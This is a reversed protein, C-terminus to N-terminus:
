IYSACTAQINLEPHHIEFGYIGLENIKIEATIKKRTSGAFLKEIKVQIVFGDGHEITHNHYKEEKIFYFPAIFDQIYSNPRFTDLSFQDHVKHASFNIKYAALYFQYLLAKQSGYYRTFYFSQGDNIFYAIDKTEHSYIYTQLQVNTFVEWTEQRQDNSTVTLRFGPQFDFAKVISGKLVPNQVHDGTLPVNLNILENIGEHNSKQYQGFPYAMTKSGIYPTRQLQFHLHPEPSRGSNGCYALISGQKVFDGKKVRFSGKKLHSLKAYLGEAHKVIITNGWNQKLNVQGILNDEINDLIEVVTGDASALVPKNYCYYDECKTGPLRYTQHDIDMIVFDLAEQWEGIHTLPGTYDQSVSWTGIFPLKLNIYNLKKLRKVDSKYQYLNLEPAYNQFYTLHLKHVHNRVKFFYLLGITLLSFPVSFIPLNYIGLVRSLGNVLLIMVTTAIIAWIYSRNSPILYVGGISLSIMMFNAGLHYNSIGDPYIGTYQNITHAVILGLSVLSFAIRSHILLGIAILIGCLMSNQFIIASLSRFFLSILYPIDRNGLYQNLTDIHVKSGSYIEFVVYSDKQMLGMAAYGNGAILVTWFTIAFPISLAPLEYKGLFASFNISLLLCFICSLTLWFWFLVNFAFFAGFGLGLLLSNFTYLGTKSISKDFGLASVMAITFSISILGSIGASPSLMSALLLIVGFM